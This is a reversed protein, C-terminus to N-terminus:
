RDSVAKDEPETVKPLRNLPLVIRFTSGKEPESEMEISGGHEQVIKKTTLLGLGTGGLGKTTFFTTFVKRKVEYDMGCGNDAVEYVVAGDVDRVRVLVRLSSKDESMNCADIANSVLNTLCEHMSESDMPVEGFEVDSELVLEVGLEEARTAYMEVVERAIGVPESMEVRVERGKSFSLFEKVFSSVRAINRDLMEMGQGIRSVNGKKIGSNLMYMGGELGTILNKVGHALGAVTHGVAALREAELKEAELQKVKRLDQVMIAVGLYKEDVVLKTGVLRVPLPEGRINRVEIERHFTHMEGAAVGALFGAPLMNELEERSVGKNRPIDFLKKAAPNFISVREKDDVAIIADLSRAVMSEMVSYAAKLEYELETIHTVDVAMEMVHDIKGDALTLPAYTVQLQVIKGSLERVESHGSHVKGDEFSKAALCYNCIGEQGKFARHCREGEINGFMEKVKRNTRVIRFERDVVLIYCPVQEFLLDHELRMARTETIDTVMEIVFPVKGGGDTVPVTHKIYYTLNGNKDYGVEESVRDKGDCFTTGGHCDPCMSDRDKYVRYCKHGKWPGFMQEFVPNAHVVNFESDIVAIAMPIVDFLNERIWQVVDKVARKGSRTLSIM